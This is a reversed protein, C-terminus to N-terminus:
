RDIKNINVDVLNLCGMICGDIDIETTKEM